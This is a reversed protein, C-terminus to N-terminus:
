EKKKEGAFTDDVDTKAPTKKGHRWRPEPESLKEQYLCMDIKVKLTELRLGLKNDRKKERHEATDTNGGRIAKANGPVKATKNKNSRIESEADEIEREKARGEKQHRVEGV